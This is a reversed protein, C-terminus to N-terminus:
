CLYHHFSHIADGEGFPWTVGFATALGFHGFAQVFDPYAFIAVGFELLSILVNCCNSLFFLVGVM